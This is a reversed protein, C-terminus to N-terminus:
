QIPLVAKALAQHNVGDPLRFHLPNGYLEAVLPRLGHHFAPSLWM